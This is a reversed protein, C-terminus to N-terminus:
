KRMFGVIDSESLDSHSYAAVVRGEEVLMVLPVQARTIYLCTTDPLLYEAYRRADKEYFAAIGVTDTGPFITVFRTSDLDNRQQIMSVKQSAMRCYSCTRSYISVLKRGEGIRAEALPGESSIANSFRSQDVMEDAESHIWNAAVSLIFVAVLPTAGMVVVSWWRDFFRTTLLVSPLLICLLLTLSYQLDYFTMTLWGMRGALYVVGAIVVVVVAPVWWRIRVSPSAYKWVFLLVLLLVANKLLSEVPNFPLMEGLCHCSDTRGSLQAYGLFLSFAMLLLINGVCSLRHWRNTLLMMGLVSEAVILLWSGVVALNFPLLGFSYIYVNLRDIDVFKSVASFIFFAGLLVKLLTATKLMINNM